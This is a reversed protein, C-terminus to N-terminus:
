FAATIKLVWEWGLAFVMKQPCDISIKLSFFIFGNNKNIQTAVIIYWLVTVM